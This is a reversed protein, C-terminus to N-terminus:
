LYDILNHLKSWVSWSCSLCFQLRYSAVVILWVLRQYKAVDKMNLVNFLTVHKVYHVIRISTFDYSKKESYRFQM